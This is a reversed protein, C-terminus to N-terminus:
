LNVAYSDLGYERVLLVSTIDTGSGLDCIRVGCPIHVDRLLEECLKLPNPGMIKFRVLAADFSSAKPLSTM